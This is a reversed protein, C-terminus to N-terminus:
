FRSIISQVKIKAESTKEILTVYKKVEDPIILFIIFSEAAKRHIKEEDLKSYFKERTSKFFEGFIM